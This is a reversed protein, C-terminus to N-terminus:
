LGRGSEESDEGSCISLRLLFWCRAVLVHICAAPISPQDLPRKRLRGFFHLLEKRLQGYPPPSVRKAENPLPQDASSETLRAPWVNGDVCFVPLGAGALQPRDHTVWQSRM